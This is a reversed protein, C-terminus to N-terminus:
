FEGGAFSMPMEAVLYWWPSINKVNENVYSFLTILAITCTYGSFSMMLIKRRGYIDSFSGLILSLIAPIVSNFILITMNITAVHPQIEEEIEKTENDANLNECTTLNYNLSLCTQKLLQNQLVASTLNFAFYIAFLAPELGYNFRVERRRNNKIIKVDSMEEEDKEM